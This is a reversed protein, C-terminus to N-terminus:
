GIPSPRDPRGGGQEGVQFLAAQQFVRQDQEAALEAAHRRRLAGIAAVVVDGAVRHEQGAGADLLAEGVAAGVLEADVGGRPRMCVVSRCAM